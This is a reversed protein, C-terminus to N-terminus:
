NTQARSWKAGKISINTTSILYNIKQGILYAELGRLDSDFQSADRFLSALEAQLGTNDAATMRNASLEDIAIMTMQVVPSLQNKPNIKADPNIATSDYVYNPSLTIGTPDEKPTLKPLLVLAIVNEALVHVPPPTANWADTFWGKGAYSPAGSTYSYLTMAESPQTLEMLRFRTRPPTTVFPPRLATDDAYEIYFGWTNLLYQLGGYAGAEDAVVGLPAQFFIAHTPGLTSMLGAAPGSIFRLESQRAYRAPTFTASNAPTRASGSADLYDWYTNLTAQSIRRTMAEFADRADRFQEIKGRTRTWMSSTVNLMSLMVVLLLTLVAM